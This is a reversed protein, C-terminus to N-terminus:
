AFILGGIKGVDQACIRRVVREKKETRVSELGKRDRLERTHLFLRCISLIASISGSKKKKYEGGGEGM